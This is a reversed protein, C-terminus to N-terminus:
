WHQVSLEPPNRVRHALPRTHGSGFPVLSTLLCFEGSAPHYDVFYCHAGGLAAAEDVLQSYFIAECAVCESLEVLLRMASLRQVNFKAFFTTPLSTPAGAYRVELVAKDGKVGDRIVDGRDVVSEVYCGFPLHHGRRLMRTLLMAGGRGTLDSVRIPFVHGTIVGRRRQGRCWLLRYMTVLVGPRKVPKLSELWAAAAQGVVLAVAALLLPVLGIIQQFLSPEAPPPPPPPLRPLLRLKRALTVLLAKRKDARRRQKPPEAPPQCRRDGTCRRGACPECVEKRLQACVGTPAACLLAAVLLRSSASM